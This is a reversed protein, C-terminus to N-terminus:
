GLSTSLKDWSYWCYDCLSWAANELSFRRVDPCSIISKSTPYKSRDVALYKLIFASFCKSSFGLDQALTRSIYLFSSKLQSTVSFRTSSLSCSPARGRCGKWHWRMFHGGSFKWGLRLLPLVHWCAPHINRRHETSHMTQFGHLLKWLARLCYVFFEVGCRLTAVTIFSHLGSRSRPTAM